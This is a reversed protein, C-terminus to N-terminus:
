DVGRFSLDYVRGAASVQGPASANSLVKPLIAHSSGDYGKRLDDVPFLGLPFLKAAGESLLVPLVEVPEKTIGTNM